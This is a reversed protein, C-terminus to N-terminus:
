YPGIITFPSVWPGFVVFPVAGPARKVISVVAQLQPPNSAILPNFCVLRAVAPRPYPRRPLHTTMPFLIRDQSFATDLAQHQRRVPYRNLKFAVNYRKEKYWGRFSAHFRLGVEDKRVVHVGGEFWHGPASGHPQVLIRDGPTPLPM